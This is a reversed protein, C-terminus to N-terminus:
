DGTDSREAKELARLDDSIAKRWELDKSLRAIKAAEAILKLKRGRSAGEPM